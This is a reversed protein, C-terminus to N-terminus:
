FVAIKILNDVALGVTNNSYLVLGSLYEKLGESWM